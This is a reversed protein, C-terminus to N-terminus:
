GRLDTQCVTNKHKRCCVRYCVRQSTGVAPSPHLLISNIRMELDPLTNDKSNILWVREAGGGGGGWRM